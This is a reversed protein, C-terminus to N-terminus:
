RDRKNREEGRRKEKQVEKQLSLSPHPNVPTGVTAGLQPVLIASVEKRKTM